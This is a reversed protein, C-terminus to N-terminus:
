YNLNTNFSGIIKVQITAGSNINVYNTNTTNLEAVLLLKKSALFRKLTAEPLSIKISSSIPIPSHSTNEYGANVLQNPATIEDIIQLNNNLTYLKIKVAVPFSNSILLMLTGNNIPSENQDINYDITDSLVLTNAKFSLPIKIKLDAKLGNGAYVFDNGCSINGMPNTQISSKFIFQDPLNEILAKINTNNFQITTSTPRVPNTSQNTQSARTINYSKGIIDGSLAVSQHSRTNNSILMQPILRIDAGISNTINLAVDVSSLGFTGSSIRRLFDVTTTDPGSSQTDNGLYGKVYKLHLGEFNTFFVFQQGTIVQSTGHDPSTTINLSTAFRNCNDFSPGRMDISYDRLDIKKTYAYPSSGNSAPIIEQLLFPTGYQKAAPISYTVVLPVMLPNFCTFVLYGDTIDVQTIKAPEFAFSKIDNNSAITQGAPLSGSGSATLSYSTVTDPLDIISDINYNLLQNHYEIWLHNNADTTLLSDAIINNITLSTQIIPVTFDADWVTKEKKCSTAIIFFVGLILISYNNNKM